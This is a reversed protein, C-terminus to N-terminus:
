KDKKANFLGRWYEIDINQPDNKQSDPQVDIRSKQLFDGSKMTQAGHDKATYLIENDSSIVCWKSINASSRIFERIIDDATQPKKSFIIKIGARGPYSQSSYKQGDLVVIIKSGSKTLKSKLYQILQDIALDIKGLKLNPVIHKIKFALNFGDIIYNM